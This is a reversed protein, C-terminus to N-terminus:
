AKPDESNLAEPESSSLTPRPGAGRYVNRPLFRGPVSLERRVSEHFANSAAVYMQWCQEWVDPNADLKERAVWELRHLADNLERTTRITQADGLLRVAEYTVSRNTEAEDLLALAKGEEVGPAADHLGHLATIQRALIALQKTDGAYRTYLELKRDAWHRAVERRYRSRDSLTTVVYTTLAGIVVAAMTAIQSALDM